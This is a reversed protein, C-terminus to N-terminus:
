QQAAPFADPFHELRGSVFTVVDFRLDCNEIKNDILYQQAAKTLNAVKRDDVHEVPHGFKQSTSSKVEVFAILNGKRVILDIEKHGARWNRELIAFGNQEFYSAAQNEFNKGKAIKHHGSSRRKESFPM